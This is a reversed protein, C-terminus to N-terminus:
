EIQWKIAGIWDTMKFIYIEPNKLSLSVLRLAGVHTYILSCHYLIIVIRELFCKKKFLAKDTRLKIHMRKFFSLM